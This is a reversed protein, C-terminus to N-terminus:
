NGFSRDDEFKRIRTSHRGGDFSNMLIASIISHLDQPGVSAPLCFFNAANHRRALGAAFPSNILASRIGKIKNAAINFGQGTQCVAIGITQPQSLVLELCPKLFDHHDSNIKSYAGYDICEKGYGAIIGRLTEKTEYGSHDACIAITSINNYRVVHSNYFRVDEPTGLVYMKETQRTIIKLGDNILLNYMPAIYFENNTRIDLEISKKGYEIFTSGRRFCYVGVLADNSIVLKEATEKAYGDDGLLVYSHANSNAKFTLLMGDCPKSIFDDHVDFWKGFCVDPTYIILPEDADILSEALLCTCLTGNTVKDVVVFELHYESFLKKLVDAIAYDICHDRRVAFILKFESAPRKNVLSDIALKIMPTGDIIILPKPINYGQDIFRKALGAIPLLVNIM